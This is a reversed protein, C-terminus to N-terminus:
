ARAATSSCLPRFAARTVTSMPAMDSAVQIATARPACLRPMGDALRINVAVWEWLTGRAM